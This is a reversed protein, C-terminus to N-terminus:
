RASPRSPPWSIRTTAGCPRAVCPIGPGIPPDRSRHGDAGEAAGEQPTPHEEEDTEVGAVRAAGRGWEKRPNPMQIIQRRRAILDALATTEVDALPRITPKTAQAFRAIVAADIPDTKARKGLAQAFARVQAPNVVVVPLGAAGLGAAVVSELGGTAEVAVMAPALPRLREILEDIGAADRGVAFAEGAPLVHVDLGAKAVDIGVVCIDM